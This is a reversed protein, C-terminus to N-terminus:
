GGRKLNSDFSNESCPLGVPIAGCKNNDLFRFFKSEKRFTIHSLQICHTSHDTVLDTKRQGGHHLDLLKIIILYVIKNCFLMCASSICFELDLKKGVYLQQSWYMCCTIYISASFAVVRCQEMRHSPNEWQYHNHPM